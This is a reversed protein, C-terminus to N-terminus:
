NPQHSLGCTSSRTELQSLAGLKVQTPGFSQQCDRALRAVTVEADVPVGSAPGTKGGFRLPFVAGLGADFCLRM